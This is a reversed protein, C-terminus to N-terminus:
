YKGAADLEGGEIERFREKLVLSAPIILVLCGAALVWFLARCWGPMGPILGLAWFGVACCVQLLAFLVVGRVAERKQAAKREEINGPKM